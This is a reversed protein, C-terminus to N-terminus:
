ARPFSNAERFLYYGRVFIRAYKRALHLSNNLYRSTAGKLKTSVEEAIYSALLITCSFVQLISITGTYFVFMFLLFCNIRHKMTCHLVNTWVDDLRQVSEPTLKTSIGGAIYPALHNTCIFTRHSLSYWIKKLMTDNQKSKSICQRRTSLNQRCHVLKQM